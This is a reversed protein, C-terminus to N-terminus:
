RAIFHELVALVIQALATYAAFGFFIPILLGFDGKRSRSPRWALYAFVVIALGLSASLWPWRDFHVAHYRLDAFFTGFVQTAGAAMALALGARDPVKWIRILAVAYPLQSLLLTLLAHLWYSRGYSSTLPPRGWGRLVIYAALAVVAVLTVRLPALTAGTSVRTQAPEVPTPGASSAVASIAIALFSAFGSIFAAAGAVSGLVYWDHYRSVDGGWMEYSMGVCSPYGVVTGFILLLLSQQWTPSRRTGALM